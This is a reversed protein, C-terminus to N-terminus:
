KPPHPTSCLRSFVDAGCANNLTSSVLYPCKKSACLVCETCDVHLRGSCFSPCFRFCNYFSFNMKSSIFHVTWSENISPSFGSLNKQFRFKNFEASYKDLCLPHRTFKILLFNFKDLPNMEHCSFSKETWGKGTGWRCNYITHYDTSFWAFKLM